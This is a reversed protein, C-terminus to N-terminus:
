NRSKAANLLPPIVARDADNDQTTIKINQGDTELAWDKIKQPDIKMCSLTARMIAAALQAEALNSTKLSIRRNIGDRQSRLYYIGSQTLELNKTHSM